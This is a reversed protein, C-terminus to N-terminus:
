LLEPDSINRVLLSSISPTYILTTPLLHTLPRGTTAPVAKREIRQFRCVCRYERQSLPFYPHQSSKVYVINTQLDRISRPVVMPVVVPLPTIKGNENKGKLEKKKNMDAWSCVYNRHKEACKITGKERMVWGSRRTFFKSDRTRERKMGCTYTQCWRVLDRLEGRRCNSPLVAICPAM